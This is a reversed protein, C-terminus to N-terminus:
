SSRGRQSVSERTALDAAAIEQGNIRVSGSDPVILGAIVSLLTSKGSGSVGMVVSLSGPTLTITVADLATVSAAGARFRKTVGTV